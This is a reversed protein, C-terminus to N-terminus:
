ENAKFLSVSNSRIFDEQELILNKEFGFKELLASFIQISSEFEETVVLDAGLNEIKERNLLYRTRVIIFVDKRLKKILSTSEQVASEDSIAIVVAKINEFGARELAEKETCDGYVIPIGLEKGSKVNNLNMEMVVYPIGTASLVRSVNKGIVGYGLILVDPKISGPEPHLISRPEKYLSLKHLPIFSIAPVAHVVLRPAMAIMGPSLLMTIVMATLIVQFNEETIIESNKASTAMVFAFEGVQSLAMGAMISVKTSYGLLHTVITIIAGKVLIIGIAVLLYSTLLEVQLNLLLGLSIFFIATLADRIPEITRAVKHSEDSGAIVVGAAFAGLALSLGVLSSLYAAGFCLLLGGMVWIESTQVGSITKLLKPLLFRFGGFIGVGLLIMFGIDKAVVFFSAEHTPSLFSIALMLPVIAIDQFILIGLSIKGHEQYLEGREKLIKLCIPTSSVTVVIGYFFSKSVSIQNTVIPSLFYTILAFLLITLLVQLSGGVLVIRKLKALEKLSFELGITFLLIIVGMESLATILKSDTVISFGSKGMLIGTLILGIVSPIKFKQFIIIIVIAVSILIILDKLFTMEHM